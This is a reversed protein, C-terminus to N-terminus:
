SRSSEDRLWVGQSGARRLQQARVRASVTVGLFAPVSPWLRPEHLALRVVARASSGSSSTEGGSRAGLQANGQAARTRRRVLDTVTRPGRVISHSGKVVRRESAAFCSHLYLDDGILEPRDAIRGYGEDDVGLVGRGFLGERVAPLREWVRYYARVVHASGHLVLRREPAVAHTGPEALAAVLARASVTDLEVDADVYLRPFSSARRDGEVLAMHKSPEALEVVDVGVFSRAVRATGDTSGNSVVIVEFEGPDADHLLGTLLRPLVAEENHAPVIVSTM